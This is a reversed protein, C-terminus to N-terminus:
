LKLVSKCFLLLLPTITFIISSMFTIYNIIMILMRGIDLVVLLLLNTASTTHLVVINAIITLVFSFRQQLM